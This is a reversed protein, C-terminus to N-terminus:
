ATRGAGRETWRAGRAERFPDIIREHACGAKSCRWIGRVRDVLRMMHPPCSPTTDAAVARGRRAPVSSGPLAIQLRGRRGMPAPKPTVGAAHCWKWVTSESVDMESAAVPVGYAVALAIARQKVGDGYLPPGKRAVSVGARQCWGYLTNADIGLRRATAPVGLTPALRLAEAHVEAPYNRRAPM